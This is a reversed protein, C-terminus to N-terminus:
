EVAILYYYLPQGGSQVYVECDAYKDQIEDGLAQATQEEVDQGYYVTIVGSEPGVMSELLKIAVEKADRGLQQ